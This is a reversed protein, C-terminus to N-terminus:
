IGSDTKQLIDRLYGDIHQGHSDLGLKRRIRSSYNYYGKHGLYTGIEKGHLGMGYLCCIGIEEETLGCGKLYSLFGPHSFAFSLRTSQLFSERDSLLKELEEGAEHGMNGSLHAAVYKELVSFRGQMMKRVSADTAMGISKKLLDRESLVKSYLREYKKRDEEARVKEAKILANEEEIRHRSEAMSQMRQRVYWGVIVGALLMIVLSMILITMRNHKKLIEMDKAHREEIFKTDADLIELDISDTIRVYEKYASLADYYDETSEKIFSRILQYKQNNSIITSDNYQEYLQIANEASDIDGARFYALSVGLWEIASSDNIVDMYRCIDENQVDSKSNLYISYYMQKDNFTMYDYYQGAASLYRAVSDQCDILNYAHALELLTYAYCEIDEDLASFKNALRMNEIYADFDYIQMYIDAKRLYLRGAAAYDKAEGAYVEARVFSEMAKENDGANEYVRGQYYWAKLREDATGHRRYWGVAVNILSDDTLDIYNKDLAMSYLLAFRANAERGCIDTGSLSDLVALARYPRGSIYTDVDDLMRLVQRDSCSTLLVSLLITFIPIYEIFSKM